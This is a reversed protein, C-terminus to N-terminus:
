KLMIPFFGELQGSGLCVRNKKKLKKQSQCTKHQRQGLGQGEMIIRRVEQGVIPSIANVHVGNYICKNECICM